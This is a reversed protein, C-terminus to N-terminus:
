ENIDINMQGDTIDLIDVGSDTQIKGSFTATLVGYSDFELKSFQVDLGYSPQVPTINTNYTRTDAGVVKVSSINNTQDMHYLANNAWTGNLKKITFEFDPRSGAASTPRAIITLIPNTPDTFVDRGAYIVNMNYQIGNIKAKFYYTPNTSGGTTTGGGNNNGGDKSCGGFFGLTLILLIITATNKM